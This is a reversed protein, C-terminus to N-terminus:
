NQIKDLYRNLFESFFSDKLQGDQWKKLHEKIEPIEHAMVKTKLEIQDLKKFILHKM